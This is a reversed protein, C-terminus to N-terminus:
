VAWQLKFDPLIVAVNSELNKREQTLRSQLPELTTIKQQKWPGEESVKMTRKIDGMWQSGVLENLLHRKNEMVCSLYAGEQRLRAQNWRRRWISHGHGEWGCPRRESQASGTCKLLSQKTELIPSNCQWLYCTYRWKGKDEWCKAWNVWYILFLCVLVLLSLYEM